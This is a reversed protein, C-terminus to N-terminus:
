MIVTIVFAATRNPEQADMNRIVQWWLGLQVCVIDTYRRWGYDPRRWYNLSTIFVIGPPLACDYVPVSLAVICSISHMWSSRWLWKSYEPGLALRNKDDRSSRSDNNKNDDDNSDAHKEKTGRTRVADEVAGGGPRGPVSETGSSDHTPGSGGSAPRFRLNGQQQQTVTDKSAKKALAVACTSKHTRWHKRQCEQGCYVAQKCPCGHKCGPTGCVECSKFIEPAKPTFGGGVHEEEGGGELKGGSAHPLVIGCKGRDGIEFNVLKLMLELVEDSANLIQQRNGGGRSDCPLRSVIERLEEVSDIPDDRGQLADTLYDEM